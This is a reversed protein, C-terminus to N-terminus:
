RDRFPTFFDRLEQAYLEPVEFAAFHGGAEPETFYALNTTRELWARPPRVVDGQFISFGSPVDVHRALQEPAILSNAHYMRMSSGITGTFWYISLNTLIEDRSYHELGRDSWSHLKEVIWAALGAPSDNLGAAATNPKTRHIAAYAGEAASWARAGEIWDREETTLASVDVGPAPLGADTRHVAIVREPFDLALYRSVHSGLDGGAAFFRQYGLRTMLEAWLAAVERSNLPAGVPADSYGFGPIDPVVVTFDRALLPIVKLYRWFSDPWGHTLLLAPAAHEGAANGNGARDGDGDGDGDGDAVAHIVHIGQGGVEVFSRPLRNLEEEQATWDFGDAWYALLERLYAHDTGLEWGSDDVTPTWRTARLRARLDEILAPDTRPAFDM